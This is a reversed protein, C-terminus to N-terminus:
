GAEGVYIWDGVWNGTATNYLRKYIKGDEVIFHWELTSSFPSASTTLQLEESTVSPTLNNSLPAASAPVIVLSVSCIASVFVATIKKIM